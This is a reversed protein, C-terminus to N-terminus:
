GFAAEVRSKSESRKLVIGGPVRVDGQARKGAEIDAGGIV